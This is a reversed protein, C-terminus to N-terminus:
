DDDRSPTAKAEVVVSSSVNPLDDIGGSGSHVLIEGSGYKVLCHSPDGPQSSWGEPASCYHGDNFYTVEYKFPLTPEEPKIGNFAGGDVLNRVVLSPFTDQRMAARQFYNGSKGTPRRAILAQCVDRTEDWGDQYRGGLGAVSGQLPGRPVLLLNCLYIERAWWQRYLEILESSGVKLAAWLGVAQARYQIAAHSDSLTESKRGKCCHGKDRQWKLRAAAQEVAGPLRAAVSVACGEDFQNPSIPHQTSLDAPPLWQPKRNFYLAISAEGLRRNLQQQQEQNM